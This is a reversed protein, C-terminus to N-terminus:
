HSVYSKKGVFNEAPEDDDEELRRSIGVFLKNPTLITQIKEEEQVNIKKEPLSNITDTHQIIPVCVKENSTTKVISQPKDEFL